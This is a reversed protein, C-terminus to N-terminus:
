QMKQVPDGSRIEGAQVVRANIGRLNMAKGVPSNVFKMADLGFREVYKKCGTHPVPTVELVASGISVRTGPPLNETSLDFDVYLQDGALSWRSKDQAMLATARANTLTIQTEPNPTNGRTKWNDGVLGEALDLAAAEVIEREGIGPRRVILELIGSDKPSQRIDDLGAELETMTLHKVDAM